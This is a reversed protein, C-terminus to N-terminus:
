LYRNSSDHLHPIEEPTWLWVLAPSIGMRRDMAVGELFFNTNLNNSYM